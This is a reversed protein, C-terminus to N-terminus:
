TMLTENFNSAIVFFLETKETQEQKLRIRYVM